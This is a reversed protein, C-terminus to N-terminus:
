FPIFQGDFGSAIFHFSNKVANRLTGRTDYRFVEKKTHKFWYSRLAVPIKVKCSNDQYNLMLGGTFVTLGISIIILRKM